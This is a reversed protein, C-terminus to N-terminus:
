LQCDVETVEGQEDATDSLFQKGLTLCSYNGNFCLSCFGSHESPVQLTLHWQVTCLAGDGACMFQCLLSM